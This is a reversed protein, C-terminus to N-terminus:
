HANDKIYKTIMRFAKADDERLPRTYIVKTKWWQVAEDILAAPCEKGTRKWEQTAVLDKFAQEDRKEQQKELLAKKLLPMMERFDERLTRDSFYAQLEEASIADYNIVHNMDPKWAVRKSRERSDMWGYSTRYWVEGGPLYRFVLTPKDSYVPKGDKYGKIEYYPEMSYIGAGPTEPESSEYTYYKMFDGGTRYRRGGNAERYSRGPVYIIRTGVRISKNKEKVFERWPKRGTGLLNEDDRVLEVGQHKMINPATKFPGLIDPKADIIGQLFVMYKTTRYRVADHKRRLDDKFSTGSDAMKKQFDEEFDSHPFAYDWLELDESDLLFLKEGNRFVLYTHRNWANRQADYYPDGSRYDFTRHKPKVAVICRKEPVIVDRFAPDLLSRVFTPIDNYDAEHDLEACLEEDMYLIRQRLSLPEYQDAPEGDTLQQMDVNKGTYLNLITIIKVLNGIKEKMEELFGNMKDLHSELEAKKVAIINDAMLKVEALRNQLRESEDLLALITQPSESAMLEQTDAAHQQRNQGLIQAAAQEGKGTVVLNAYAYLEGVPETLPRYYQKLTSESVTDYYCEGIFNRVKFSRAGSKETYEEILEFVCHGNPGPSPQAYYDGVQPIHEKVAKEYPNVHLPQQQTLEQPM